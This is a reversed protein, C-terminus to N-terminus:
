RCTGGAQELPVCSLGPGATDGFCVVDYGHPKCVAYIGTLTTIRKFGGSGISVYGVATGVAVLGLALAAGILHKRM